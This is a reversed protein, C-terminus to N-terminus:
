EKHMDFVISGKEVYKYEDEFEEWSEDLKDQLEKKPDDITKQIRAKMENDSILVGRKLVLVNYVSTHLDALSVPYTGDEISFGILRRTPEAFVIQGEFMDSQINHHKLKRDIIRTLTLLSCKM